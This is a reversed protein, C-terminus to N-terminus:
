RRSCCSTWSACGSSGRPIPSGRASAGGGGRAALAQRLSDTRELLRQQEDRVRGAEQAQEFPLPAGSRRTQDGVPAGTSDAGGAGRNRQAALDETRRGLAAADGALDSARRALSDGAARVADRLEAMSRLRVAYERSVGSHPQPARDTARAFLRLTDGPLLGRGNLDLLVSQVVHDAGAVGTVTDVTRAGVSGLRSM